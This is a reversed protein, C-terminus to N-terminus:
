LGEGTTLTLAKMTNGRLVYVIVERGAPLAGFLQTVDSARMFIREGEKEAGKDRGGAPLMGKIGMLRDGVLVGARAAPSKELVATVLVSGDGDSVDIGVFGRMAVEPPKRGGLLLVANKMIKSLEDIAGSDDGKGGLREPAPPVFALKTWKMRDTALDIEMKYQALFTYGLIGHMELGALGLGNMGELQFPTDVLCKMKIHVPGGEVQITDLVTSADKKEALGLKKGVDTSVYVLPAGTDVLFNFPGKGNLKTRVVIHGTKSFRFPVTFAKGADADQPPQRPEKAKEKPMGIKMPLSQGRQDSVGGLFVFCMEDTTQEGFKVDKPPNFPNNPNTSSNDFVAELDLRTGAKIQLAQKFYYSEQWNYDWEKIQFLLQEAGGPPTMTVKIEKGLMHMHPMIADMTMDATAHSTGKVIFRDKGKPIFFFQGMMLGGQYEREVKKKAFYLGISTRDKELRGNRHYHVQMVVDSAKPLRIGVGEAMEHPLQGPAWGGLDRAPVFGPGMGGFYGPGKDQDSGGHPDKRPKELQQKELRRGNAGTDIFALVHHVVRANGPRVEIAEVYKDETLGTPMVFCRFLDNGSPGVQFDDSVTLVLDPQGLRWGEPFKVPPPADKSDGEPTGQDAWAALVALEKDTLRRENHFEMGDVIKWPPMRRSQTYDKIDTAWNVAQRYNMLSFPGVDGPRHCQQCRNQLIPLVDKHYTVSAAKTSTKKARVIPCGVTETAKTTVPRGSLLEGLAQGLDNTTVIQNKKLRAAWSNDIRGRYRLTFDGDLLFVEPTTEAALADTAVFKKDLMVPFSLGFEKAHKAIEEASEDPNTTFGLMVAGAKACDEATAALAQSYSTSVPCEFSLFVIVIAQKGKFDYLHAPKGSADIFPFNVIKKDLNKTTPGDSQFAQVQWQMWGATALLILTALVRYRMSKERGPVCFRDALMIGFEGLQGVSKRTKRPQSQTSIPGLQM